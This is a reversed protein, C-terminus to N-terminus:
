VCTHRTDECAVVDVEKLDMARLTIDGLEWNAIRGHLTNGHITNYLNFSGHAITFKVMLIFSVGIGRNKLQCALQM